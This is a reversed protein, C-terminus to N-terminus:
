TPVLKFLSKLVQFFIKKSNLKLKWFKKLQKIVKKIKILNM